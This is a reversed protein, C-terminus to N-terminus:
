EAISFVHCGDALPMKVSSINHQDQALMSFWKQSVSCVKFALKMTELAKAPRCIVSLAIVYERIDM